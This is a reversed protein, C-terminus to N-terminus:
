YSNFLIELKRKLTNDLSLEDDIVIKVGAVLEPEISAQVEDSKGFLSKLASLLKEPLPRASHLVIKKFGREKRYLRLVEALIQRLYGEGGYKSATHVLNKVIAGQQNEPTDAFVALFAKAFITPSPRM